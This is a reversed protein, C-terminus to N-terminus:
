KGCLKQLNNRHKISKIIGATIYPKGLHKEKLSISKLPFNKNYLMHFKDMYANCLNEAGEINILHPNWNFNKLDKRFTNINDDSYM